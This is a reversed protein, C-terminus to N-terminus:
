QSVTNRSTRRDPQISKKKSSTLATCSKCSSPHLATKNEAEARVFVSSMTSTCQVSVSFSYVNHQPPPPLFFHQITFALISLPSISLSPIFSSHHFSSLPFTLCHPSLLPFPPPTRLSPVLHGASSSPSDLIVYISCTENAYQLM